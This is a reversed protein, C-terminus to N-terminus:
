RALHGLLYGAAEAIGEPAAPSPRPMAFLRDLVDQVAGSELADPAVELAVGHASLWDVLCPQEPWDPRGVYLVPTGNYAAEAFSGYGPKCLMADCSALVDTFDMHLADLSCADAHAVGWDAQVLWRVGPIRPWHEMPLRCAIGGLTVLVLREGQQLGLKVDIEARRNKGVRAIPGIELLNPMEAMPMGPTLRLFSDAAAYAQTMQRHIVEADPLAVCYHWFIDAWNLSCMAACGGGAQKAAALPLYAVNSLVFDPALQSIFQAEAAVKEDWEQHFQRYAQMSPEVLVGMASAMVLGFDLSKPIHQFDVHIRAQLHALPAASCLTLQLSPLLECLFNLVPATQAVHGYGHASIYVLLHPSTKMPLEPLEAM